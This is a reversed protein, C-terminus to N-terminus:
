WPQSGPTSVASISITQRRPTTDTGPGGRPLLGGAKAQSASVLLAEKLLHKLGATLM